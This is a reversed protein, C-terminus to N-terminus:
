LLRKVALPLAAVYPGLTLNLVTIAPYIFCWVLFAFKWSKPAKPKSNDTM